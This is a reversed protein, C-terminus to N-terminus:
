YLKSNMYVTHSTRRTFLRTWVKFKDPCHAEGYAKTARSQPIQLGEVPCRPDKAGNVILLPRPVIAPITYPADFSSALGPAIRDWVKEVVEKDIASKGLDKQAEEFVPRISNVRAQWKDNDVAWRFGQVGIIPVVVSYRTDVFAAYWAHMGGLSEGTIGIRAPDIDERKTLYDALKILDWVTDFIFPMTDGKKWSSILADRYGTKSGAREGHYRSDIAIALYGRSAYAELLPRLWEKCKNTSHLFVVAPKREKSEKMSLILVPLRGQQGAETTLYLNEEKLLEKFNKIVVKPCSEMAQSKDTPLTNDLFFPSVVPKGNEVSLPVEASRRSRLVQLFDSRLKQVDLSHSEMQLFTNTAPQSAGKNIAPIGYKYSVFKPPNAISCSPFKPPCTHSLSQAQGPLFLQALVTLRALRSVLMRRGEYRAEGLLAATAKDISCM